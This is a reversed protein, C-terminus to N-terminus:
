SYCFLMLTLPLTLTTLADHKDAFCNQQIYFHKSSFEYYGFVSYEPNLFSILVRCLISPLKELFM